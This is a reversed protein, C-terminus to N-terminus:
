ETSVSEYKRKGVFFIIVTALFYFVPLVQWPLYYKGFMPLTSEDFVNWFGVTIGASMKALFMTQKSLKNSLILQDTKMAREGPLM